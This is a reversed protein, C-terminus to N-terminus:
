SGDFANGHYAVSVALSQGRARVDVGVALGVTLWPGLWFDARARPEVVLVTDALQLNCGKGTAGGDCGSYGDPLKPFVDTTRAGVLVQAGLELPGVRQHIGLRGGLDSLSGSSSTIPAFGDVQTTSTPAALTWSVTAEFGVDILGGRYGFWDRPGLTTMAGRPLQAHYGAMATASSVTGTQDIPDLDAHVMAMGLEVDLLGLLWHHAWRSGFSGCHQRGVIPSVEHCHSGAIASGSMAALAIVAAIRIV